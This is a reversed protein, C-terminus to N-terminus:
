TPRPGSEATAGPCCQPRRLLVPLYRQLHRLTVTGAPPTGLHELLNQRLPPSGLQNTGVHRRFDSRPVTGSPENRLAEVRLPTKGIPIYSYQVAPSGNGPILVNVDACLFGQYSQHGLIDWLRLAPLQSDDSSIKRVRPGPERECRQAPPPGATSRPLKGRVETPPPTATWLRVAM